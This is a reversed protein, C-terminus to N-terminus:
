MCVPVSEGGDGFDMLRSVATSYYCELKKKTVSRERRKGSLGRNKKTISWKESM